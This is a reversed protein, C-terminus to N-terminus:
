RSWNFSGSAPPAARGVAKRIPQQMPEAKPEM